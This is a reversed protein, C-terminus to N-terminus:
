CVLSEFVIVFNHGYCNLSHYPHKYFNVCRLNSGGQVFPVDPLCNWCLVEVVVHLIGLVMNSHTDPRTM